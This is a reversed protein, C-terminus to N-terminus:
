FFRASSPSIGLRKLAHRIGGETMGFQTAREDHYANPIYRLM